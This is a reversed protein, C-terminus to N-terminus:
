TNRERSFIDYSLSGGSKTVSAFLDVAELSYKSVRSSIAASRGQKLGKDSLFLRARCGFDNVMVGTALRIQDTCGDPRTLTFLGAACVAGHRDDDVDHYVELRDEDFDANLTKKQARLLQYLADDNYVIWKVHTGDSFQACRVGSDVERLAYIWGVDKKEM